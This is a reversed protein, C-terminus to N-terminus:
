LDSSCVDSSWDCDFRTHRRRSSFFFLAACINFQVAKPLSQPIHQLDGLQSGDELHVVTLLLRNGCELATTNSTITALRAKSPPMFGAKGAAMIRTVYTVNTRRADIARCGMVPEDDDGPDPTKGVSTKTCPLSCRVM